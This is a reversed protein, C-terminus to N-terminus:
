FNKLNKIKRLNNRVNREFINKIKNIIFLLYRKKIFNDNKFFYNSDHIDFLNNHGGCINFNYERESGKYHTNKNASKIHSFDHNQHFCNVSNTLDVLKFNKKYSESIIWNDWCTRGILFDKLDFFTNKNFIFYDIGFKNHLFFKHKNYKLQNIEKITLDKNCDMDFRKGFALFNKYRRNTISKITNSLTDDFIIDSNFYILYDNNSEKIARKFINSIFPTEFENTEFENIIKVGPENRYQNFQDFLLLEKFIKLKKISLFSNNQHITTLKKNKKPCTFFSLM